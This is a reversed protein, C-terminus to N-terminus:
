HDAEVFFSIAAPVSEQARRVSGNADIAAFMNKELTSRRPDSGSNWIAMVAEDTLGEEAQFDAVVEAAKQEDTYDYLRDAIDVSITV